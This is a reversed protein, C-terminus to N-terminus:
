VSLDEELIRLPLTTQKELIILTLGGHLIFAAYLNVLLVVCNDILSPLIM